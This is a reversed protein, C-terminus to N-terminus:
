FSRVNMEEEEDVIKYTEKGGDMDAMFAWLHPYGKRYRTPREEEDCSPWYRCGIGGDPFIFNYYGAGPPYDGDEMDHVTLTITKM